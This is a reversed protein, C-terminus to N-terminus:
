NHVYERWWLAFNFLYWVKDSRKDDLYRTVESPNLFDTQVCFDNLERRVVDGLRGLFWEYIPVAFGQKARNILEDPILGHVSKKLLVKLHGDRTKLAEPISMALEVFKHDLFPIRAELSVGMNMKNLRMLFLETLRM